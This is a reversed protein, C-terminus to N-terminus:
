ETIEGPASRRLSALEEQSDNLQELIARHRTVMRAVVFGFGIFSVLVISRSIIDHTALETILVGLGGGRHMITYNLWADIVWLLMGIGLSIGFAKHEAKM